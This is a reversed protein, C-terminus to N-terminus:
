PAQVVWTICDPVGGTTNFLTHIHRRCGARGLDTDHRVAINGFKWRPTWACCEKKVGGNNPYRGRRSIRQRIAFRCTAQPVTREERYEMKSQAAIAALGFASKMDPISACRVM